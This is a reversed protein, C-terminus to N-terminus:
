LAQVWSRADVAAVGRSISSNSGRSGELFSRHPRCRKGSVEGSLAPSGSSGVLRESLDLGESGVVDGVPMLAFMIIGGIADVPKIVFISIFFSSTDAM